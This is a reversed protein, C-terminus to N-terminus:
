LWPIIFTGFIASAIIIVSAIITLMKDKMKSKLESKYDCITMENYKDIDTILFYAERMRRISKEMDKRINYYSNRVIKLSNNNELEGYSNTEELGYLKGKVKIANKYQYICFIICCKLNAYRIDNEYIEESISNLKSVMEDSIDSLENVKKGCTYIGLGFTSDGFNDLETLLTDFFDDAVGLIIDRYERDLM